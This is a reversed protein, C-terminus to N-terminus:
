GCHSAYVLRTSTTAVGDAGRIQHVLVERFDDLDSAELLMWIDTEGYCARVQQVGTITQLAAVVESEKTQADSLLSIAVLGQVSQSTSVGVM